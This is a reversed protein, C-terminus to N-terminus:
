GLVIDCILVFWVPMNYVLHQQQQKRKESKQGFGDCDTCTQWCDKTPARQSIHFM